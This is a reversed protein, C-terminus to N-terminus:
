GCCVLFKNCQSNKIKEIFEDGVNGKYIYIDDNERAALEDANYLSIFTLLQEKTLAIVRTDQCYCLEMEFDEDIVGLEKLYRICPYDLPSTDTYRLFKNGWFLDGAEQEGIHLRFGM